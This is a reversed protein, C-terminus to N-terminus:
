FLSLLSLPSLPSFFVLLNYEEEIRNVERELADTKHYAEGVYEIKKSSELINLHYNLKRSIPRAVGEVDHLGNFYENFVSSNERIKKQIGEYTFSNLEDILLILREIDEMNNGKENWKLNRVSKQKMKYEM